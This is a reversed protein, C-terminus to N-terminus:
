CLWNPASFLGCYNFPFWTSSSSPYPYRMFTDLLWVALALRDSLPPSPTSTLQQGREVLRNLVDDLDMMRSHDHAEAQFREVDTKTRFCRARYVISIRLDETAYSAVLDNGVILDWRDTTANHQLKSPKNKDIFPPEVEPRYVTTTHISKSGDIANGSRPLPPMRKDSTSDKNPWYVFEGFKSPNQRVPDLAWDSVYGVVQVQDVFEDKFLGSFSMVALLWQPFAFRSAGWFYVGDVHTAVAQGPIQVIFNFQFPDLHQKHSPCVQAAADLFDKSDFLSRIIAHEQADIDFIYIGFTQLRSFLTGLNEKLGDIGGTLGFARAVDIRGPLICQTRNKNPMLYRHACTGDAELPQAEGIHEHKVEYFNTDASNSPIVGKTKLLDLLASQTERNVLEPVFVAAQNQMHSPIPTRVMYHLVLHAVVATVAAAATRLGWRQM